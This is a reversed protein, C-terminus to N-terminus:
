HLLKTLLNPLSTMPGKEGAMKQTLFQIREDTGPHSQYFEPLSNSLKNNRNIHRFFEDAGLAHGYYAILNEVAIRDADREQERSFALQGITATEFFINGLWESAVSGLIATLAVSVLVGRGLSRIPHREYQHAMEHALVMALGNESDVADFLAVSMFIHGGPIIFANPLDDDYVTVTFKFAQKEKAKLQSILQALYLEADEFPKNILNGTKNQHTEFSGLEFLQPNFWNSEMEPSIFGILFDSLYALLVILLAILAFAGGILLMLAKLPNEDSTNIGEPIIKAEYKM